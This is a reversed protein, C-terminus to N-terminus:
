KNNVQPDTMHQFYTHSMFAGMQRLEEFGLPAMVGAKEKGLV